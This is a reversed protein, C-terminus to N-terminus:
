FLFPQLMKAQLSKVTFLKGSVKWLLLFLHLLFPLTEEVKLTFKLSIFIIMKYPLIWFTSNRHLASYLEISVRLIEKRKKRWHIKSNKPTPSNKGLLANMFQIAANKQSSPIKWPIQSFM